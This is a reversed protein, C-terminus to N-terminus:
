VKIKVLGAAERRNHRVAEILFAFFCTPVLPLLNATQKILQREIRMARKSGKSWLWLTTGFSTSAQILIAALSGVVPVFDLIASIVDVTLTFLGGVVIEAATFKRSEGM